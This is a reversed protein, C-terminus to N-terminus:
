EVVIAAAVAEKEKQVDALMAAFQKETKRLNLISVGLMDAAWEKVDAVDEPIDMTITAKGNKNTRESFVAGDKSIFGAGPGISVMFVEKKAAGEGDYLKLAQPRYKKMTKLQEPTASSTIVLASGTVVATAEDAANEAKVTVRLVQTQDPNDVVDDLTSDLASKGLIDGNFQLLGRQYNLGAEDLLSRLTRSSEATIVAGDTGNSVSVKTIFM